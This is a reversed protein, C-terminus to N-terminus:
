CEEMDADGQIRSCQSSSLDPPPNTITGTNSIMLNDTDSEHSNDGVVHTLEHVFTWPSATSGVWFGRRGPPHAACGRFGAADGNIYYCVINAGLDRGLDFLQDEEDSVSHGSSACDDQDLTLLNNATVTISSTPYIWVDCEGFYVTNGNDLDRQLTPTAGQITVLAVKVFPNNRIRDVQQLVSRNQPNDTGYVGLIDERVSLSGTKDLCDDAIDRLSASM